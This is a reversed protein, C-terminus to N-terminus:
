LRNKPHSLVSLVSFAPVFESPRILHIIRAGARLVPGKTLTGHSCFVEVSIVTEQERGGSNWWKKM